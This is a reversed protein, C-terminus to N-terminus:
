IDVYFLGTNYELSHSKNVMPSGGNKNGGCGTNVYM